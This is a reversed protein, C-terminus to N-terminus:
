GGKIINNYNQFEIVLMGIGVSIMFETSDQNIFFRM